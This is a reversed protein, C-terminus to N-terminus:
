FLRKVPKLRGQPVRKDIAALQARTLPGNDAEYHPLTQRALTALAVHIVQTESLGLAEALRTTTARSVGYASDTGRYRLLIGDGAPKRRRPSTQSSPM